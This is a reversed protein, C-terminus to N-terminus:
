TVCDSFVKEIENEEIQEEEIKKHKQKKLQKLM